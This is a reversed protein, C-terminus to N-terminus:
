KQLPKQLAYARSKSFPLSLNLLLFIQRNLYTSKVKTPLLNSISLALSSRQLFYMQNNFSISKVQEPRPFLYGQSKCSTSLPLSSKQLLYIQGHFSNISSKQLICAQSSLQSPKPLSKSKCSTDAHYM